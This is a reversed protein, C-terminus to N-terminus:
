NLCEHILLRLFVNQTDCNFKDIACMGQIVRNMDRMNFLYHCKAPIPKFKEEQFINKFLGIIVNCIPM